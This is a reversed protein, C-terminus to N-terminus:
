SRPCRVPRAVGPRLCRSRTTLERKRVTLRLYQGITGKRTVRIDLTAGDRLRLRRVQPLLSLKARSKRVRLKRSKFACGGGKCALAVADGARGPVMQLRTFAVAGKSTVAWSFLLRRRLLPYDADSGSCDQDIGDKPIDRLGPRIKPDDDRCDLPVAAGDGDKDLNPPPPPPPPPPAVPDPTSNLLISVTNSSQNAVALDTKGDANFDATAVETARQGTVIPSSPDNAFGTATRLLVSISTGGQNAVALDPAGDRNFDATTVGVPADGVAFPSGDMSAFGGGVQGLLVAVQDISPLAVALDPRGDANFDTSALGIPRTGIAIPSGSGQAFSGNPQQVWLDISPVTDNSAAIDVRGDGTFDAVELDAKHGTSALQVPTDFGTNAANRLVVFVSDTSTSGFVLDPRADANVRAVKVSTAGDVALANAPNSFTGDTQRLFLDAASSPYRAVALDPRGDGDLDGIAVATAGPSSRPMAPDTLWTGNLQRLWATVTGGTASAAAFDPTGNGDLDATAVGYPAIGVQLPSGNDQVFDAAAPAAPVFALTVALVLLRRM